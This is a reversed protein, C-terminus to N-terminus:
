LIKQGLLPWSWHTLKPRRGNTTSKIVVPLPTEGKETPTSIYELLDEFLTGPLARGEEDVIWQLSSSIYIDLNPDYKIALAEAEHDVIDIFSIAWFPFYGLDTPGFGCKPCQHLGQAIEILKHRSNVPCYIM